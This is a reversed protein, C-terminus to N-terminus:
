TGAARFILVTLWGHNYPTLGKINNYVIDKASHTGLEMAPQRAYIHRQIHYQAFGDGRRRGSSSHQARGQPRHRIYPLGARRAHWPRFRHCLESNKILIAPENAERCEKLRNVMLANEDTYVYLPKGGRATDGNWDIIRLGSWLYVGPGIYLTNLEPTTRIKEM